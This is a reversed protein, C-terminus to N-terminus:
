TEPVPLRLKRPDAGVFKRGRTTMSRLKIPIGPNAEDDYDGPEMGHSPLLFYHENSMQPRYDRGLYQLAEPKVQLKLEERLERVAAQLPTEDGDVGGGPFRRQGISEPWRKQWLTEMLYKNKGHPMVVRVRDKVAASAKLCVADFAAKDM